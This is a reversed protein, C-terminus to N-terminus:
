LPFGRPDYPQRFAHDDGTPEDGFEGFGGLVPLAIADLHARVFTTDWEVGCYAWHEPTIWPVASTKSDHLIRLGPQYVTNFTFEVVGGDPAIGWAHQKPAGAILYVGEFYRVGGAEAAGLTNLFCRGPPGQSFTDPLPRGAFRQGHRLLLDAAGSYAHGPRATRQSRVLELQRTIAVQSAQGPKLLSSFSFEASSM